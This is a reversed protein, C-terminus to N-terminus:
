DRGKGRPKEDAGSRISEDTEYIEMVGTTGMTGRRAFNSAGTKYYNAKITIAVGRSHPNVAILRKRTAAM